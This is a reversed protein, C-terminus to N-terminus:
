NLECDHRQLVFCSSHESHGCYHPIRCFSKFFQAGKLALKGTGSSRSVELLQARLLPLCILARRPRQARRLCQLRLTSGREPRYM